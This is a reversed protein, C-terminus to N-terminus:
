SQLNSEDKIAIYPAAPAACQLTQGIGKLFARRITGAAVAAVVEKSHREAGSFKRIWSRFPIVGETTRRLASIAAKNAATGGQVLLGAEDEEPPADLDSGLVLNLAIVEASLTACSLEDPVAYPNSAADLLVTPIKSKVLNLDSLPSTVAQTVQDVMEPQESVNTNNKVTCATILSTLLVSFVLKALSVNHSRLM